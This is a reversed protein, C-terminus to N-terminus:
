PRAHISVDQAVPHWFGLIADGPRVTPRPNFRKSNACEAQLDVCRGAERDPTSQFVRLTVAGSASAECRGAERDPTSQFVFSLSATVLARPM